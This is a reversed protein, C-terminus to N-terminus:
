VLHGSTGLIWEPDMKDASGSRGAPHFTRTGQLESFQHELQNSVLRRKVTSQESFRVKKKKKHSILLFYWTLQEKLSQLCLIIRPEKKKM